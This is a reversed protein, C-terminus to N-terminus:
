VHVLVHVSNLFIAKHIEFCVIDYKDYCLTDRSINSQIHTAKSMKLILVTSM